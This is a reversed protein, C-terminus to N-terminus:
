LVLCRISTKSPKTTSVSTIIHLLKTRHIRVSQKLSTSPLPAINKTLWICNFLILWIGYRLYSKGSGALGCTLAAEDTGKPDNFMGKGHLWLFSSPSTKWITYLGSKILWDGTLTEHRKRIDNYRESVDESSLWELLQRRTKNRQTEQIISKMRSMESGMPALVEMEHKHHEAEIKWQQQVKSALMAMEQKHRETDIDLQEQVKFDRWHEELSKMRTSQDQIAALLKDWDDFATMDRILKSASHKELYCLCTAQFTLIKVYLIKLEERYNVHVTIHAKKRDMSGDYSHSYLAERISCQRLLAAIEELGKARAADQKGPNL